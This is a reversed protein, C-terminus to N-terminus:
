AADTKATAEAVLETESRVKIRVEAKRVEYDREYREYFGARPQNTASGDCARDAPAILSKRPREISTARTAM